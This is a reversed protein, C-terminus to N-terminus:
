ILNNSLKALKSLFQSALLLRFNLDNAFHLILYIVNENAALEM